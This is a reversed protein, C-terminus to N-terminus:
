RPVPCSKAEDPHISCPPVAIFFSGQAQKTRAMPPASTFTVKTPQPLSSLGSMGLMSAPSSFAFVGSTKVGGGSSLPNMSAIRSPPRSGSVAVHLLTPVVQELLRSQQVAFQAARSPPINQVVGTPKQL